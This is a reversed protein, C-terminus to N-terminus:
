SAKFRGQVVNNSGAGSKLNDLYDAWKQMMDRRQPLHKTRNYARGLPDKVKHALQQEIWEVQFGLEEDLLTRAMARFGHPTMDDNGYGMSRLATRVANDSLPKSINNSPFVFRNSLMIENLDELICFAQTSLPVILEERLKMREKPIVWQKKDWDIESWEMQRLEGPRVFFLPSLKLAAQVSLSGVYSDIKLMLKGVKSPDIIAARHKVRVTKLAGQLNSTPDYEARGTIIAYRFIQGAARKVKHATENKGKAEIPRLVELVQPAKISAIDENGLKPILHVDLFRRNKSATSDAWNTAEKEYWENAVVKFLSNEAIDKQQAIENKNAIPDIGDSVLRHADNHLNRAEKLSIEPYAGFQMLKEKGQYRYKYRWYKYGKNHVFLYLGRSDALKYSKDKPKANNVVLNNLGM